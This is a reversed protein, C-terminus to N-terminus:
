VSFGIKPKVQASFKPTEIDEACLTIIDKQTVSEYDAAILRTAQAIKAKEIM